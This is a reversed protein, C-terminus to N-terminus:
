EYRLAEVPNSQATKSSQLAVTMFAIAAVLSAAVIFVWFQIDTRYAFATLWNDIALYSVISAFVASIGILVLQNQALQM